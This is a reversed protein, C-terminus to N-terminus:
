SQKVGQLRKQVPVKMTQQHHVTGKADQRIKQKRRLRLDLSKIGFFSQVKKLPLYLRILFRLLLILATLLVENAGHKDKQGRRRAVLASLATNVAFFVSLTIFKPQVTLGVAAVAAPGMSSVMMTDIMGALSIFFSELVAPWAIRITERIMAKKDYTITNTM